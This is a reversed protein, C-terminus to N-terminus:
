GENLQVDFGLGQRRRRKVRSFVLWALWLAPGLATACLWWRLPAQVYYLWGMVGISLEGCDWAWDGAHNRATYLATISGYDNAVAHFRGVIIPHRFYVVITLIFALSSLLAAAAFAYQLTRRVPM